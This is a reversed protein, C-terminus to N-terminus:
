RQEGGVYNYCFSLQAVAFIVAWHARHMAARARFIRMLVGRSSKWFNRIPKQESPGRRERASAAELGCGAPQRGITGPGM